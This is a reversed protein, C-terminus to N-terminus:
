APDYLEATGPDAESHWDGSTILVRGDPLLTATHGSRPVTMDGTRTFIETVPDFLEASALPHWGPTDPSVGGAILVKGNLLLTATHGIRGTTMDATSVFTGRGQAASSASYTLVATLLLVARTKSDIM